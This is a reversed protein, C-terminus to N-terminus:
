GVKDLVQAVAAAALGYAIHAGLTYAHLEPPSSTPGGALGLLPVALEDGLGWLGVGLAVGGLVDPWRASGRLAGYLAAASMGFAWHVETSLAKSTEKTRPEKGTVAEFAIRGVAETSGEGEKHQKGVVSIDDLAQAKKNKPVSAERPDRGTISVVAKWYGDMAMVGVVGGLAGVIFGKYRNTKNSM